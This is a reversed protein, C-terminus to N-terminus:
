RSPRAVVGLDLADRDPEARGRVGVVRQGEAALDGRDLVADGGDVDDPRTTARRGRSRCRSPRPSSRSASRALGRDDADPGGLEGLLGAAGLQLQRDLRHLVREGVAAEVTASTSPSVVNM